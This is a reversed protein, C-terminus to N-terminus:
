RAMQPTPTGYLNAYVVNVDSMAKKLANEDLANGEVVEVRASKLHSLRKSNRLYLKLDVDTNQLFMTTAVRAVSGNAGIILM